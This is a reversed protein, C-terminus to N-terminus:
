QQAPTLPTPKGVPNKIKYILFFLFILRHDSFMNTFGKEQLPTQFQKVYKRCFTHLSFKTFSFPKVQWSM